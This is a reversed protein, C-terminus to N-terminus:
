TPVGRSLLFDRVVERICAQVSESNCALAVLDALHEANLNTRRPDALWTLVSFSSELCASSAPALFFRTMLRTLRPWRSASLRLCTDRTIAM